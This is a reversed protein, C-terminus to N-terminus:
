GGSNAKFVREIEDKTKLEKVKIPIRVRDPLTKESAEVADLFSRCSAEGKIHVNSFISSTAV